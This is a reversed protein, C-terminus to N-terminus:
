EPAERRGDIVPPKGASIAALDTRLLEAGPHSTLEHPATPLTTVVAEIIAPVVYADFARAAAANIRAELGTLWENAVWPPEMAEPHEEDKWDTPALWYADTLVYSVHGIADATEHDGKRSAEYRERLRLSLPMTAIAM